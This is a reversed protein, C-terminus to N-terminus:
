TQLNGARRRVHDSLVDQKIRDLSVCDSLAGRPAPLSPPSLRPSTLTMIKKKKKEKLLCIRQTTQEGRVARARLIFSRYSYVSERSTYEDM